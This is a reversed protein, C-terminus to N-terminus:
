PRLCCNPGRQKPDGNGCERLRITEAATVGERAARVTEGTAPTIFAPMYPRASWLRALEARDAAVNASKTTREARLGAGGSTTGLGGWLTAILCVATVLAGFVAGTWGLRL